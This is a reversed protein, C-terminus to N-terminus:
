NQIPGQKLEDRLRGLQTRLSGDFVTGGVQAVVGGILGADTRSEVVLKRQVARALADRVDALEGESMPQASTITARVRGLLVDLLEGFSRAIEPLASIRQRDVLLRLFNGVVPALSLRAVLTDIVQHRQAASYGPAFLASRVEHSADLASTVASLQAAFREASAHSDRTAAAKPDEDSPDLALSLLARAYRRSVSSEIM